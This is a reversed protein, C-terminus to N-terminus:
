TLNLLCSYTRGHQESFFDLLQQAAGASHMKYQGFQERGIMSPCMIIEGRLVAHHHFHGLYAYDFDKDTGRRSNHQRHFSDEIGFYPTRHTINAVNGHTLLNRYGMVTDVHMVSEPLNWTVNEVRITFERAILYVAMDWNRDATLKYVPKRTTRGHNGVVGNVRVAKFHAALRLITDALVRGAWPLARPMAMSTGALEDPHIMGLFWDGLLNVTCRDVAGAQRLINTIEVTKAAVQAMRREHTAADHASLGEMEEARVLEESHPDALNLVAELPAHKLRPAPIPVARYPPLAKLGAKLYEFLKWDSGVQAKLRKAEALAESLQARLSVVQPGPDAEELMQRKDRGGM